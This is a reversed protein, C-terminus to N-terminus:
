PLPSPHPNNQKGFNGRKLSTNWLVSFLVLNVEMSAWAPYVIPSTVRQAWATQLQRHSLAQPCHCSVHWTEFLEVCHSGLRCCHVRLIVVECICHLLVSSIQWLMTAAMNKIYCISMLKCLERWHGGFNQMVKTTLEKQTNCNGWSFSFVVIIRKNTKNQKKQSPPPPRPCPTIHSIACLVISSLYIKLCFYFFFVCFQHVAYSLLYEWDM